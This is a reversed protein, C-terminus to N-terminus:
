KKEGKPFAVVGARVLERYLRQLKESTGGGRGPKTTTLTGREQKDALARFTRKERRNRGPVFKLPRVRIPFNLWFDISLEPFAALAPLLGDPGNEDVIILDDNKTENM